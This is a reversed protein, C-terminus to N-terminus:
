ASSSREQLLYDIGQARKAEQPKLPAGHVSATTTGATVSDIGVVIQQKDEGM